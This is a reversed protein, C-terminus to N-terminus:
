HHSPSALPNNSNSHSEEKKKTPPHKAHLYYPLPLPFAALPMLRDREKKGALIVIQVKAPPFGLDLIREEKSHLSTSLLSFRKAKSCLLVLYRLKVIITWAHM